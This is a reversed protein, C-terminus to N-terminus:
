GEVAVEGELRHADGLCSREGGRAQHTAAVLLRGVLGGDVGHSVGEVREGDLAGDDDALALAVLRRHQEDALLDARSVPRADVDREVRELAGRDGGLAAGVREGDDGHGLGAAEEVCGVDIHFLDRDAGAQGLADDIEVRRRCFVERREGLRFMGLDGIEDDANEVPRAMGLEDGLHALGPRADHQDAIAVDRPHDRGGPRIAADVEIEAGAACRFPHEGGGGQAADAALHLTAQDEAVVVLFAAGLPDADTVWEITIREFLPVTRMMSACCLRVRLVLKRGASFYRIGEGGTPSSPAWRLAIPPTLLM